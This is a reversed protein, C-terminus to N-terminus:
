AIKKFVTVESVPSALKIPIGLRRKVARPYLPAFRWLIPHLLQVGESHSTEDYLAMAYAFRRLIKYFEPGFSNITGCVLKEFRFQKEIQYKQRYQRYIEKRNGKRTKRRHTQIFTELELKMRMCYEHEPPPLLTFPIQQPKKKQSNKPRMIKAPNKQPQNELYPEKQTGEREADPVSSNGLSTKEENGAGETNPTPSNMENGESSPKSLFPTESFYDRSTPRKGFAQFTQRTLLREPLQSQGSNETKM